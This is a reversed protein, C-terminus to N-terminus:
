GAGNGIVELDPLRLRDPSIVQPRLKDLRDDFAGFVEQRRESCAIQADYSSTRHRRTVALINIIPHGAWGLVDLIIDMEQLSLLLAMCIEIKPM